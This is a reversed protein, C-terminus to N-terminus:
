VKFKHIKGGHSTDISDEVWLLSRKFIKFFFWRAKWKGLCRYHREFDSYTSPNIKHTAGGDNDNFAISIGETHQAM